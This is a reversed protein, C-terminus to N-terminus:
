GAWRPLRDLLVQPSSCNTASSKSPSPPPLPLYYFRRAYVSVDVSTTVPLTLSCNESGGGWNNLFKAGANQLSLFTAHLKFQPTECLIGSPDVMDCARFNLYEPWELAIFVQKLASSPVGVADVGGCDTSLSSSSSSRSRSRSRLKRWFGTASFHTIRLLSKQPFLSWKM